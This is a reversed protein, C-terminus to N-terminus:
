WDEERIANGTIKKASYKAPWKERQRHMAERKQETTVPKSRGADRYKRSKLRHRTMESDLWLPDNSLVAVRNATDKRTCDKCKNLRGDAM